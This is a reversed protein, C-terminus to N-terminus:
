NNFNHATWAAAYAAATLWESCCSCDALMTHISQVFYILVHIQTLGMLIRIDLGQVAFEEFLWVAMQSMFQQM